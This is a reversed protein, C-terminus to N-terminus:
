VDDMQELGDGDGDAQQVPWGAMEFHMGSTLDGLAALDTASFLKLFKPAEGHRPYITVRQLSVGTVQSGTSGEGPSGSDALFDLNSDAAVHAVSARTRLTLMKLLLPPTHCSYAFSEAHLHTLNPCLQPNTVSLRDLIIDWGVFDDRSRSRLNVGPFCLELTQLSPLLELLGVIADVNERDGHRNQVQHDFDNIRFFVLNHPSSQRICRGTMELVNRGGQITLKNLMPIRLSSIIAATEDQPNFLLTELQPLSIPSPILHAEDESHVRDLLLHKLSACQSFTDQVHASELWVNYLSLSSLQCWPFDISKLRIWALEVTSLKPARMFPKTHSLSPEWEGESSLVIDLSILEDFSCSKNFSLFSALIAESLVLYAKEWRQSHGVFLQLVPRHDHDHSSDEFSVSLLSDQTRELHLSIRRIDSPMCPRPNEDADVGFSTVIKWIQPATTIVDRWYRCVQTYSWPFEQWEVSQWEHDFVCELIIQILLESPISAASATTRPPNENM